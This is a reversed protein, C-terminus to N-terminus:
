YAVPRVDSARDGTGHLTFYDYLPLHSLDSLCTINVCHSANLLVERVGEVCDYVDHCIPCVIAATQIDGTTGM